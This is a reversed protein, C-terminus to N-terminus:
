VSGKLMHYCYLPFKHKRHPRRWAFARFLLIDTALYRCQLCLGKVFSSPTKRPTRASSSYHLCEASRTLWNETPSLWPLNTTSSNSAPRNLSLTHVSSKIYALIRSTFVSFGLAHTVTFQFTDIDFIASYNGTTGFPTYFADIFGIM